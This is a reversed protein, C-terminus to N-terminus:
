FVITFRTCFSTLAVIFSGGEVVFFTAAFFSTTLFSFVDYFGGDSVTSCRVMKKVADYM